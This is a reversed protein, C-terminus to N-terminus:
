LAVRKNSRSTRRSYSDRVPIEKVMWSWLWVLREFIYKVDDHWDSDYNINRGLGAMRYTVREDEYLTCETFLWTASDTVIGYSKMEMPQEEEGDIDSPNRKRKKETLASELQVINQAVGQKFDDKKVETVGLTCDYTRRSHM